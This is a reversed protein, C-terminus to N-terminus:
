KSYVRVSKVIKDLTGGGVKGPFYQVRVDHLYDHHDVVAVDVAALKVEPGATTSPPQSRRPNATARSRPLEYTFDIREALKAGTLGLKQKKTRHFGQAFNVDNAEVLDPITSRDSTHSIKERVTLEVVPHGGSWHDIDLAPANPQNNTERRWGPPYAVSVHQSRAQKYGNPTVSGSSTAGGFCGTLLLPMVCLGVLGARAPRM